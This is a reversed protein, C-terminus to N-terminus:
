REKRSECEPRAPVISKYEIMTLKMRNGFKIQDIELNQLKSVIQVFTSYRRWRSVFTQSRFCPPFRKNRRAFIISKTLVQVGMQLYKTVDAKEQAIEFKMQACFASWIHLRSINLNALREATHIFYRVCIVTIILSSKKPIFSFLKSLTITSKSTPRPTLAKTKSSKHEIAIFILYM